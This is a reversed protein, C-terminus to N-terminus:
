TRGGGTPLKTTRTRVYAWFALPIARRAIREALGLAGRALPSAALGPLGWTPNLVVRELPFPQAMDTTIPGHGPLAEVEALLRERTSRLVGREARVLVAFAFMLPNNTNPEVLFLAGGPALVRWAEALVAPRAYVHHLVDRVLVADFSADRYPLRLIDAAVFATGRVRARAFALRATSRDCGHLARARGGLHFLNGGQGCGVELLRGGVASVEDLLGSEREAAFPRETQWEFHAPEARGFRELQIADYDKV